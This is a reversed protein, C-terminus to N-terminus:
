AVYAGKIRVATGARIRITEDGLDIDGRRLEVLEGFRLATWSALIVMLALREPMEATLAGAQRGVRDPDPPGAQKQRRRRHPVPQRRDAGRRNRRHRRRLLSYAHSRLTPRDTLTREYWDRVDAPKIASM